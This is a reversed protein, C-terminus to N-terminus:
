RAAGKNGADGDFDGDGDLEGRLKKVALHFNVKAANESCDAIEAVERFPLEEFVRLEVVLRQKPPLREVAAVLRQRREVAVLRATGVPEDILAASSGDDPLPARRANDRVHNLALNVTIRYLWTRVLSDGRFSALGGHARVLARQVVDDADDADKVYRLALRVLRQQHRRMLQDFARVDGRRFAAVLAADEDVKQDVVQTDTPAVVAVLAVLTLVTM